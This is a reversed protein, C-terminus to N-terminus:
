NPNTRDFPALHVSLGGIRRTAHAHGHECLDRSPAGRPFRRRRHGINDRHGLGSILKPKMMHHGAMVECHWRGFDIMVGLRVARM